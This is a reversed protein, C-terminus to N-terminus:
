QFPVGPTQPPTGLLRFTGRPSPPPGSSSYLRIPSSQPQSPASIHCLLLSCSPSRLYLPPTWPHGWLFDPLPSKM